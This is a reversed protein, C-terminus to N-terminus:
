YPEEWNFINDFTKSYGANLIYHGYSFIFGGAVVPTEFPRVLKSRNSDIYRGGHIPM